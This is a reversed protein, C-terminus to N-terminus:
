SAAEQREQERRQGLAPVAEVADRLDEVDLHTYVQATLKPDSHGMLRQAKALSVGSRALRTGFTHRLAHVDLKRGEADLKAIGASELIRDLLRMLNATHWPWPVGTPTLFVRDEAMPLRGFRSEHIVKLQRFRAVQEDTLPIVRRKKSKTTEARLVLLRRAMDVDGWTALTAETYRAGTEILARFFPAQPIRVDEARIECLADDEEAAALFRGLEDESLARRRYRQHDRTTPLAKLKALPNSALYCSEAAWRLASRLNGAYLNATRNSAGEAVLRSRIRVVLMPKLDRVRLDGLEALMFALKGAVNKLHRPCVRTRLDELYDRVVEALPLDMGSVAGLGDLEMDRRRILEMRRREAVGKNSGLSQRRRAGTADTWDLVYAGNRKRLCGPGLARGRSM